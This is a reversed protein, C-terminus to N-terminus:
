LTNDRMTALPSRSAVAADGGPPPNERVTARSPRRSHSVPSGFCHSM